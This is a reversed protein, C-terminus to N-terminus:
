SKEFKTKKIKTHPSHCPIEYELIEQLHNIAEEFPWYKPTLTTIREIIQSGITTNNGLQIDLPEVLRNFANLHLKLFNVVLLAKLAQPRHDKAHGHGTAPQMSWTIWQRTWNEETSPETLKLLSLPSPLSFLLFAIIPEILLVLLKCM